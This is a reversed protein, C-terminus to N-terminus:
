VLNDYGLDALVGDLRGVSLRPNKRVKEELNERNLRGEEELEEIHQLVLKAGLSYEPHKLESM